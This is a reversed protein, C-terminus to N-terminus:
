NNSEIHYSKLPLYWINGWMNIYGVGPAIIDNTPETDHYTGNIIFHLCNYFKGAPVQLSDTDSLLIRGVAWTNSDILPISYSAEFLVSDPLNTGSYRLLDGSEYRLYCTDATKNMGAGMEYNSTTMVYYMRNNLIKTDTIKWEWYANTDPNNFNTYRWWNGVALPIFEVSTTNTPQTQATEKCAGLITCCVVALILLTKM